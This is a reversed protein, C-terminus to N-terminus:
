SLTPIAQGAYVIIFRLSLSGVLVLVPILISYKTKGAMELAEFALPVIIGAAITLIWFWMAYPGTLLFAMADRAGSTGM